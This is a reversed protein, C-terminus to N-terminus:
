LTPDYDVFNNPTEYLRIKKLKLKTGYTDVFLPELQDFLWKAINEATPIFYVGIVKFKNDILLQIMDHDHETNGMYGHDLNEDIFGNAITKIHSFDIVMGEDSVGKEGIVDGELTIEASYRHGHVNKCKSSHNPVRHGMDWGIIRTIQM